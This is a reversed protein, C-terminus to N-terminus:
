FLMWAGFFLIRSPKLNFFPFHDISLFLFASFNSKAVASMLENCLFSSLLREPTRQCSERERARARSETKLEREADTERIQKALEVARM